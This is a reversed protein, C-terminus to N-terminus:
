EGLIEQKLEYLDAESYQYKNNCFACVAEAGHDQDILEQIQEPGLTIIASAFKEKSCDCNFQVPMKDLFEVETTALLNQLIEEPTQGEDLLTSIRTTEKLRAEIQDIIAENAGPMIQIMFGGATKISDDTDVLVSVGVASPIQESVALYYTFDEGIEGSVIPTQGSFPEKLGLDKIVTFMGATGVAGRVDIKGAGNLPLSIHPNKIYGKVEGKGNSDVIIAGAPGNGEIKVTLKDEGKLTAGLMLAGVMTRGLAASSTNWTDHRCQAEAITETANVAYARVFGEYALAKVLYDSM